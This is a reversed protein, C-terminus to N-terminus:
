QAQSSLSPHWAPHPPATQNQSDIPWAQSLCLWWWSQKQFSGPGCTPALEWAPAGDLPRRDLGGRRAPAAGRCSWRRPRAGGLAQNVVCYKKASPEQEASRRRKAMKNLGKDSCLSHGKSASTCHLFTGLGGSTGERRGDGQGTSSVSAGLEGANVGLAGGWGQTEM